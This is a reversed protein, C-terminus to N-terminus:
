GDTGCNEMEGLIDVSQVRTDTCLLTVLCCMMLVCNRRVLKELNRLNEKLAIKRCCSRKIRYEKPVRMKEQRNRIDGEIRKM